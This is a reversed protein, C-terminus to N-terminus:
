STSIRQQFADSFVDAFGGCRAGAAAIAEAVRPSLLAALEDGHRYAHMAPTLASDDATAPHCYIEGVGRPLAALAELM